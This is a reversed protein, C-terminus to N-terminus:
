ASIRLETPSPCDRGLARAIARVSAGDPAKSGDLTVVPLREDDAVPELTALQHELVDIRAEAPDRGDRSRATIRERLMALPAQVDLVAIPAGLQLAVQRLQARQRRLLFAADVIATYGARVVARAIGALRGYTAETPEQGYLGSAVASGSLADAPLGYLRKREVDSRIRLGRIKGVLSLAITSKGSGSLGRMLVIGPMAQRTFRQALELYSEYASLLRAAEPDSEELQRSRILHVKARVMARYVAYFRLVALGPYDGSAEFYSSLFRWALADAGRDLLDMFLFAAESVPDIWRLGANFEICDFPVLEGDLLVINRLHLDGHCERIMAAARRERLETYRVMFERETWDRLRSFPPSGCAGPLLEAIQDFNDWADALVGATTGYPLEPTARPVSDHFKAVRVALRDVLSPSLGGAALLHSALADQPFRRMRVAYEFVPGTGAIRPADVSGCIEVVDLYLQPALRRNLELEQECFHRRKELTTFDAFGLAVPKKIKYAYAGALLVWSIHTEIVEVNGVEHPYADPRRLGGLLSPAAAPSDKGNM